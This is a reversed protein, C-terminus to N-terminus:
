ESQTCIAQTQKSNLTCKINIRQYAQWGGGVPLLPSRLASKKCPSFLGLYTGIEIVM